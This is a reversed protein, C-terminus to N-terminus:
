LGVEAASMAAIAADFGARYHGHASMSHPRIFEPVRVLVAGQARAEALAATLCARTVEMAEQAEQTSVDNMTCNPENDMRLLALAGAEFVKDIDVM